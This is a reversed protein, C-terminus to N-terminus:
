GPVDFTGEGVIAVGGGVHVSLTDGDPEVDVVLTSPRGIEVGQEIEIRGPGHAEHHV